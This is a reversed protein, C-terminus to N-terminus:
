NCGGCQISASVTYVGQGTISVSGNLTTITGTATFDTAQAGTNTAITALYGDAVTDQTIWPSTVQTVAVTGSVPQTVNSGDVRLLGATTLSLAYIDNNTLGSEVATTVLGGVFTASAPAAAATASVSANNFNGNATVTANLNAATPQSVLVASGTGTGVVTANLNAATAQGVTFTGTGANATVTGSVPQTVNSGDVRLLGATTLSLAYMDGNTLGSEVATTVLGGMYTADAPPAAATAGVSANNFNGTGANSTVTGTVTANLNAATAQVVTFNGTGANATVTGSVPQTVNSGDVRLLGTTTLSLPYMDNNTLGSEVATTVLGGVYTADVPPASATAGVSANNFNGNATVTANLNAATAQTVTTTWTGGQNATVTGSVPQTVASGDVRLAGALTLSLPNFTNNLYTPSSTTAYGDTSATLTGTVPIPTGGANGQVTVLNTASGSGAATNGVVTANLNSATPQVVTFNGSGVVTANLNAATAQGVTFTGTGANATVTGSVPQTVNSGDVRLLGTTTLSLAYIDNNTLGSETATTVLGGVFTASGPAATATASVSANNFNGTGANATITGTVTANLNAATAQVVTFNGTGANATVTGSVPQTVNSGDVRLLGATTLSLPYMDNNTLGSEVATTVLGGVYTADAPPTAATAGVSANNFNGTGANATITGTVTANLNAATAQVVTFNGTGANATVTGSVPQTVNSGDVRLLGATTLSLPYLDNNTLGSEVATTVLGGVYTANAPPAAATASESSTQARLNSATSQVVTFNGTGANATVTGSVPQTVNSGDVRLLGATTLSLAYMDNNTLGSEVATTVLGGVYVANAPPAAATASEASTQTRLNAATSQVVTANLNAATPQNALVRLNGTTDLSLYNTTNNSYSPASTTVYGDSNASISGTVSVPLPVGGSIGQVTVVGTAATGASGTGVVNFNGTGANATVTGSVPQTVNSGDVRLLGATTLSLPDMQGNSYSQLATSVLAGMYTSSAPPSAANAGVSANNFNGTGANATVTGTVTQTGPFNTVIVNPNTQVYGDVVVQQTGNTQNALISQLYGDANADRTIWPSTGQNVTVTGSVPQVVNSGDVRLLGTTTLSLPNNTNNSYTPPSLTVYGDANATFTGTVRLNGFLDTSLPVQYGNTWSPNSINAVAPLTPIKTTSDPSNDSGTGVIAFSGSVPRREQPVAIMYANTSGSAYSTVLLRVAYYGSVDIFWVGDASTSPASTENLTYANVVFWSYGDNITAEFTVTLSGTTGYLQVACTAQGTLEIELTQDLANLVVNESATNVGNLENGNSDYLTVRGANSGSDIQWQIAGNVGSEILAM